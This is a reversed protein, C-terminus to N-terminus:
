AADEFEGRGNRYLIAGREAYAHMAERDREVWQPRRVEGLYQVPLARRGAQLVAQTQEPAALMGELMLDTDHGVYYRGLTLSRFDCLLTECEDVALRTGHELACAMLLDTQHNLLRIDVPRNGKVTPFFLGLGLRPGTSDEHGADRARNPYDRVKHLVECGKYSAWRGNYKVGRFYWSLTSDNVEPEDTLADKAATFFSRGDFRTLWDLLHGHMCNPDRLGRREIGTPLKLVALDALIDSREPDPHEIFATIGSSLEYYALYLVTLWDAHAEDLDLDAIVQRLVPYVPDIDWSALMHRGFTAFAALPAGPLM